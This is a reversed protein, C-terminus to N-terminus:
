IIVTPPSTITFISSSAMLSASMTMRLIRLSRAPLRTRKSTIRPLPSRLVTVTARSSFGLLPVLGHAKPLNTRPAHLNHNYVEGDRPPISLVVATPFSAPAGTIGGAKACETNDHNMTNKKAEPQDPGPKM